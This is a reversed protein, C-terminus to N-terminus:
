NERLAVAPDESVAIVAPLWGALVALLPGLVVVGLLVQPLFLERPSAAGHAFSEWATGGFFGIAYGLAAGCLGVLAARAVFLGFIQRSRTGLARLVGIESRRERVNMLSVLGVMLCAGVVVLPLLVTALSALRKLTAQSDDRQKELTAVNQKAIGKLHQQGADEVQNRARARAVAQTSLEIVQVDGGLVRAVDKQVEGLRDVTQCNCELAQMMNIRGPLKLIKQATPLDIWATIDDKTGRPPYVAGIKFKEGLITLTEGKKLKLDRALESGVNVMGPPIPETLPKKEGPVALPVVGTVGMLLLQRKQEPWDIKRVLAPRLHAITFLDPAKALKQVYEEPMTKEAFDAAHFDSLNQDAPLILLNFGLNKTIRRIEDDLTKIRATHESGAKKLQAELEAAQAALQLTTRKQYGTLLTLIGVSVAAAAAVAMLGIAFNMKRHAIEQCVLTHIKM